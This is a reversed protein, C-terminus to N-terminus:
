ECHPPGLEGNNFRDLVGAIEVGEAYGGAASAIGFPLRGDADANATLWADARGIAATADASAAGHAVNLKAAILQHAVNLSADGRVPTNLLALLEAQTYTVGGLSLSETEWREEHNKWYGQTYTCGAPPPPPCCTVHEFWFGWQSGTFRTGNGWGTEQQVVEGNVVRVVETHVAIVLRQGDCTVGLASLPIRVEARPGAPDVDFHYPFSGPAVNGGRNTPVPGTGAYVHVQELLWEGSTEVRVILEDTTNTVTVTGADITRGAYLTQTTPTCTASETSAASSTGAPETQFACGSCGSFVAGFALLLTARILHREMTTEEQVSGEKRM